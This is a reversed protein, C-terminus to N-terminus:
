KSPYGVGQGVPCNPVNAQWYKQAYIPLYSNTTFSPPLYYAVQSTTYSGGISNLASIVNPAIYDLFILDVTSPLSGDTPFSANAQFDNPQFYYPISSHVTDDGDSGLDDKTTYGPTLATNQRRIVKGSAYSRAELHNHSVAPDRCLDRDIMNMDNFGFDRSDLDRKQYAGANLIGLVKSAQAYPVNSLYQFADTFPSVIFSDDYTFPGKVLDFRVSGTNLIILRPITARTTNVVVASLATSLLSYINGSSGFPACSECWTQPACGFLQTLNLQKRAASITDTVAKGNQFDFTSDQSGQAHYEFTRRNWDLYRRSYRPLPLGYSATQMSVNTVAVQSPTPQGKPSTTANSKLGNMSFWGLTECYRGSELGTAMQDYIAFDRIHTHGGFMQIPVGPRAKRIANYVTGLTSGTGNLRVPNHGTVLFLDIPQSFNVAQQFWTQNVMTAAKIVRSVNSNGTFDYLVGFAM